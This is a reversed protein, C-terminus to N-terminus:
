LVAKLGKLHQPWSHSFIIVDDIYAAAYGQHPNLVKDMLHQFTAVVGHFGFPMRQFEFLGWLTGFLMKEWDEHAM